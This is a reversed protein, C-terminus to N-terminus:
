IDNTIQLMIHLLTIKLSRENQLIFAIWGPANAKKGFRLYKYTIHMYKNITGFLTCLFTCIVLYMVKENGLHSGYM